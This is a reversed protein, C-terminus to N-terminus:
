KKKRTRGIHFGSCWYCHYAVLKVKTKRSMVFAAEEAKERSEYNVKNKCARDRGSLIGILYTLKRDKNKM